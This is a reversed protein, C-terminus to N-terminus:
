KLGRRSLADLMQQKVQTAWSDFDFNAKELAASPKAPKTQSKKSFNGTNM